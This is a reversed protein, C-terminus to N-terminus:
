AHALAVGDGAGRDRVTHSGTGSLVSVIGGESGGVTPACPPSSSKGIPGEWEKADSAVRDRVTNGDTRVVDKNGGISPM